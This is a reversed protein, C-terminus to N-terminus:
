TGTGRSGEAWKDRGGIVLGMFVGFGRRNMAFSLARLRGEGM